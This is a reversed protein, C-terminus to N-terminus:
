RPLFSQVSRRLFGLRWGAWIIATFHTEKKINYHSAQIYTSTTSVTLFRMLWATCVSTGQAKLDLVPNRHLNAFVFVFVGKLDRSQKTAKDPAILQISIKAQM